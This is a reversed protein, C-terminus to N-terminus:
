HSPRGLAAADARADLRQKLLQAVLEHVRADFHNDGEGVRYRGGDGLRARFDPLLDLVDYGLKEATARLAIHADALPYSSFEVMLPILMLIPRASSRQRALREFDAFAGSLDAWRQPYSPDDPRFDDVLAAHYRELSPSEIAGLADHLVRCTLSSRGLAWTPGELRSLLKARARPRPAIDNPYFALVAVGLRRQAPVRALSEVYRDPGAGRVGLSFVHVRRGERAYYGELRNGFRQPKPVGHGWVFSDGAIVVDDATVSALNYRDRYGEFDDDFGKTTAVRAFIALDLASLLGLGVALGLALGRVPKIGGRFRDFEAAVVAWATLLRVAPLAALMWAWQRVGENQPAIFTSGVVLALGVWRAKPWAVLCALAAVNFLQYAFLGASYRGLVVPSVSRTLALAGVLAAFAVVVAAHAGRSLSRPDCHRSTNM